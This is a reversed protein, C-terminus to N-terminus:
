SNGCRQRIYSDHNEPYSAYELIIRYMLPVYQLTIFM